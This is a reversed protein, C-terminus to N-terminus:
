VKIVVVQSAKDHWTQKNSDWLMWLYGLLCVLGSVISVIYRVAARGQDIQGGSQADVVKIGCLRKGVTQGTTGEQLTFYVLGVVLGLGQQGGQGLGLIAVVITTPIGYIIGDVVAAAFRIWFGARPASVGSAHEGYVTYGPPAGQPPPPPGPPPPPPFGSPPPPPPFDSM